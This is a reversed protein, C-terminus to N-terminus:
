VNVTVRAVPAGDEADAAWGEGPLASGEEIVAPATEIWGFPPTNLPQPRATVTITVSGSLSASAGLSDVADASITHTGPPLLAASISFKWGTNSLQPNRLAIGIDPRPVGLGEEGSERGDVSVTVRAVPAGDEADAAWG